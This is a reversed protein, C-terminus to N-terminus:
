AGEGGGEVLAEGGWERKGKHLLISSAPATFVLTPGFHFGILTLLLRPLCEQVDDAHPRSGVLPASLRSKGIM